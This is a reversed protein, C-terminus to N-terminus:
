GVGSRQAEDAVAANSIWALSDKQEGFKAQCVILMMLGSLENTDRRIVKRVNWQGYQDPGFWHRNFEPRRNHSQGFYKQAFPEFDSWDADTFPATAFPIRSVHNSVQPM